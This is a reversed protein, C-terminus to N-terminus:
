TVLGGSFGPHNMSEVVRYNRFGHASRSSQALPIFPPSDCPDTQGQPLECLELSIDITQLSNVCAPGRLASEPGGTWRFGDRHAALWVDCSGQLVTQVKEILYRGQDDTQVAAVAGPIYFIGGGGVGLVVAAGAILSGDAESRVTGTIRFSITEEDQDLDLGDYCQPLSAVIAALVFIRSWRM